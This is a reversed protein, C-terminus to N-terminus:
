GTMDERAHIAPEESSAGAAGMAGTGMGNGASRNGAANGSMAGAGANREASEVAQAFAAQMAADAALPEEDEFTREIGTKVPTVADAAARRRALQAPNVIVGRENAN